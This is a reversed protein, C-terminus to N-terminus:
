ACDSETYRTILWWVVVIIAVVIAVLGEALLLGGVAIGLENFCSMTCSTASSKQDDLVLM